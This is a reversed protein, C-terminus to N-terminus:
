VNGKGGKKPVPPLSVRCYGWIISQISYPPINKDLVRFDRYIIDHWEPYKHFLSNLSPIPYLVQLVRFMISDLTIVTDDLLLNRAFARVKSLPERYLYREIDGKEMCLGEKANKWNLSLIGEPKERGQILAIFGKVNLSLSTRPSLRAFAIIGNEVPVGYRNCYERILSLYEPYFDRYRIGEPHVRAIDWVQQLRELRELREM